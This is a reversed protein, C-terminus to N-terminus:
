CLHCTSTPLGPFSGFLLGSTGKRTLLLQSTEGSHVLECKSGLTLNDAAQRNCRSPIEFLHLGHRNLDYLALRRLSPRAKPLLSLTTLGCPTGRFPTRSTLTIKICFIVYMSQTGQRTSDKFVCRRRVGCLSCFCLSPSFIESGMSRCRHSGLCDEM